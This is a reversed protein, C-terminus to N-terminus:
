KEPEYSYQTLELYQKNITIITKNLTNELEKLASESKELDLATIMELKRKLQNHEVAVKTDEVNKQLTWISQQLTHIGSYLTNLLVDLSKEAEQYQYKANDYDRDAKYKMDNLEDEIKTSRHPLRKFYYDYKDETLQQKYEAMDLAESLAYFDPSQKMYDEKIKNLDLAALNPMSITMDIKTNFVDLNKGMLKSLSAMNNQLGTFAKNYETQKLRYESEYQSLMNKTILGQELKIKAVDLDKKAIDVARQADEVEYNSTMVNYYANTVEYDSKRKLDNRKFIEQRVASAAREITIKYEIEAEARQVVSDYDRPGRSYIDYIDDYDESKQKIYSQQLKFQVDNDLAIQKAKELTLINDEDADAFVTISSFLMATCLLIALATNRKKM